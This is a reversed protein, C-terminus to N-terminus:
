KDFCYGNWSPGSPGNIVFALAVSKVKSSKVFAPLNKSGALWIGLYPAFVKKPWKPCVSPSSVLVAGNNSGILADVTVLLFGAFVKIQMM